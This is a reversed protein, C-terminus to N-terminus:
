HCGDPLMPTKRQWVVSSFGRGVAGDERRPSVLDARSFDKARGRRKRAIGKKPKLRRDSDRGVTIGKVEQLKETCHTDNFSAYTAISLEIM